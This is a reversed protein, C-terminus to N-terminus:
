YSVDVGASVSSGDIDVDLVWHHRLSTELCLDNRILLLNRTDKIVLVLQILLRLAFEVRARKSWLARRAPSKNRTVDVNRKLHLLVAFFQEIINGLSM